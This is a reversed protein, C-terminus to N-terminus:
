EIFFDPVSNKTYSKSVSFVWMKMTETLKPWMNTLNLATIGKYNEKKFPQREGTLFYSLSLYGGDIHFDGKQNGCKLDDLDMRMWEGKLSFPGIMWALEAGYRNRRGDHVVANDFEFFKTDDATQFKGKSWWSNKDGLMNMDEEGSTISGGLHIEKLFPNERKNFPSLV